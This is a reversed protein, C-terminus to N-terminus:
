KVHANEFLNQLILTEFYKGHKEPADSFYIYDSSPKM